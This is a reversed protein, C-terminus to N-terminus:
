QRRAWNIYGILAATLVGVTAAGAIRLADATDQSLVYVLGFTALPVLPVALVLRANQAQRLEPTSAGRRWISIWAVAGGIYLQCPFILSAWTRPAQAAMPTVSGLLTLVVAVIAVAVLVDRCVRLRAIRVRDDTQQQVTRRAERLRRLLEM